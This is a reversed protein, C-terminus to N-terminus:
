FNSIVFNFIYQYTSIIFSIMANILVNLIHYHNNIYEVGSMLDLIYYKLNYLLVTFWAIFVFCHFVIKQVIDITFLDNGKM